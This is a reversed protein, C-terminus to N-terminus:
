VPATAPSALGRASLSTVPVRAPLVLVLRTADATRRPQVERERYLALQKRLFLLFLFLNEAALVTRSRVWATGFRLADAGPTAEGHGLHTLSAVGQM